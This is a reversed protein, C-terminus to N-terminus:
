LSPLATPPRRHPMAPVKPHAAIGPELKAPDVAVVAFVIRGSHSLLFPMQVLLLTSVCVAASSRSGPSCKPGAVQHQESIWRRSVGM